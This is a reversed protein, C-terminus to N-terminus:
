PETEILLATARADTLLQKVPSEFSRIPPEGCEHSCRSPHPKFLRIPGTWLRSTRPSRVREGISFGDAVQRVGRTSDAGLLGCANGRILIQRPLRTRSLAGFQYARSPISGGVEAM